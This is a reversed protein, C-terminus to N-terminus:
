AMAWHKILLTMTVPSAPGDMENERRLDGRLNRGTHRFLRLPCWTMKIPQTQCVEVQWRARYLRLVDALPWDAAALTTVVLLWEALWLATTSPLRGKQQAKRRVRRRAAEAHRAVVADRAVARWLAAAGLPVLRAVGPRLRRGGAAVGARRLAERRGDGPPLHRPHHAAGRRGAASSGGGRQRPLWVWQRRGCHGRAAPCFPGAKRGRLPRDRPGPWTARRHFRLGSPAGTMTRAALSGSLVPM